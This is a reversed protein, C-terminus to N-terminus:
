HSPEILLEPYWRRTVEPYSKALKHLVKMGVTEFEDDEELGENLSVEHGPNNAVIQTRITSLVESTKPSKLPTDYGIGTTIVISLRSGSGPAPPIVRHFPARCLGHTAAQCGRGVVFIPQDPIPPCDVWEGQNNRAQLCHQAGIQFILTNFSTDQHAGLSQTEEASAEVEPYRILRIRYQQHHADFLSELKDSDVGIAEAILRRLTTVLATSEALLAQLVPTFRPLLSASPWQGSGLLRRYVPGTIAEPGPSALTLHERWDVQNNTREAGLMAYGLFSPSNAIDLKTKEAFPLAFFAESQTKAEAIVTRSLPPNAVYFMGVDLLAQRLQQVLQTRSSPNDLMALDITPVFNFDSM